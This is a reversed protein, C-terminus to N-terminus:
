IHDLLVLPCMADISHIIIEILYLFAARSIPYFFFSFTSHQYRGKRRNDMWRPHKVNRVPISPAWREDFDM